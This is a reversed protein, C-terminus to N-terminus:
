RPLNFGSIRVRWTVDTNTYNIGGNIVRVGPLAKRIYRVLQNIQSTMNNEFTPFTYSGDKNKQYQLPRQANAKDSTWADTRINTAKDYSEYATSAVNFSMTSKMLNRQSAPFDVSIAISRINSQSYKAIISDAFRMKELAVKFSAIDSDGVLRETRNQLRQGIFGIPSPNPISSNSPLEKLGALELYPVSDFSENGM